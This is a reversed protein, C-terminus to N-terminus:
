FLSLIVVEVFCWLCVHVLSITIAVSSGRFIYCFHVACSFITLYVFIVSFHSSYILHKSRKTTSPSCIGIGNINGKITHNLTGLSIQTGHKLLLKLAMSNKYWTEGKEVKLDANDWHFRKWWGPDQNMSSVWLRSAVCQMFVLYSFYINKSYNGMMQNIYNIEWAYFLFCYSQSSISHSKLLLWQVMPDIFLAFSSFTILLDAFIWFKADRNIKVASQWLLHPFNSTMVYITLESIM